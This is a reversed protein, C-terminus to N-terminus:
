FFVDDPNYVFYAVQTKTRRIGPVAALKENVLQGVDFGEEIVLKVLLDWKGSIASVERVGPVAKLIERGVTYTQGRECSVSIFFTQM